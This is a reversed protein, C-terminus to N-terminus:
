HRYETNDEQAKWTRKLTNLKHQPAKCIFYVVVLAQENKNLGGHGLASLSIFIILVSQEWFTWLKNLRFFLQKILSRFLVKKNKFIQWEKILKRQSAPFSCQFKISFNKEQWYYNSTLLDWKWTKLMPKLSSNLHKHVQFKNLVEPSKLIEWM